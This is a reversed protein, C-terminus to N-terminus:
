FKASGSPQFIFDFGIRDNDVTDVRIVAYHKGDRSRVCYIGGKKPQFWHHQYGGTPCENVAGLNAVMMEQIGASANKDWDPNKFDGADYPLFFGTIASKPQKAALIDALGANWAVIAKSVFQYGSQDFFSFGDRLIVTGKLPEPPPPVVLSAPGKQLVLLFVALSGGARAWKPLNAEIFGPLMAAVGAAALALVVNFVQYQLPTPERVAVALILLAIVFVVGFIFVAIREQAKTMEGKRSFSFLRWGAPVAWAGPNDRVHVPLTM